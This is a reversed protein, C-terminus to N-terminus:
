YDFVNDTDHLIDTDEVDTFYEMGSAVDSLTDSDHTFIDDSDSMLTADDRTVLPPLGLEWYGFDGAHIDWDYDGAFSVSDNVMEITEYLMSDDGIHAEIFSHEDPTTNGDIDAALMEDSIDSDSFDVM